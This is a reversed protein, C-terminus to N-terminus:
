SHPGLVFAYATKLVLLDHFIGFNMKRIIHDSVILSCLM